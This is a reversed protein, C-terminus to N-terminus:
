PYDLATYVDWLSVICNNTYIVTHRKSHLYTDEDTVCSDKSLTM